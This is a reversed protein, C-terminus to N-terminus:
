LKRKMFDMIEDLLECSWFSGEHPANEVRILEADYGNDVLARYMNESESYPVIIDADGHVLLVPPYNKNKELILQPSIERLLDLRETIEGGVFGNLRAPEQSNRIREFLEVLNAPGFCDVAASVSDSFEAYEGTKYKPDDGTLAVLLATHGGSSTGWFCVRDPDIHYEEANKRLFRIATKADKLFAPAPHGEMYNRHTISAVVYGTRAISALQPLQYNVDPFTWASGQLFVILPWKQRKENNEEEKAWPVILQMKLEVGSVNSFVVNPILRAMGTLDPNNKFTKIRNRFM